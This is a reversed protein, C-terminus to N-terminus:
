IFDTDRHGHFLSLHCGPEDTPNPWVGPLRSLRSQKVYIWSSAGARSSPATQRQNALREMFWTITSCLNSLLWWLSPTHFGLHGSNFAQTDLCVRTSGIWTSKGNPNPKPKFTNETNDACIHHKYNWNLPTWCESAQCQTNTHTHTIDVRTHTHTYCSYFDGDWSNHKSALENLQCSNCYLQLTDDGHMGHYDQSIQLWEFWEPNMASM